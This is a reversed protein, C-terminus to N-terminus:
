KTEDWRNLYAPVGGIIGFTQVSQAVSYGPMARVVDLFNLDILPLIQDIKKMRRGLAEEMDKRVWTLQPTALLIFVPSKGFKGDKRDFLSNWFAESRKAMILFDDIVVVLKGGGRANMQAFCADYSTEELQIHYEEQLEGALLAQQKKESANRVRYYFVEKNSAFEQILSEKGCRSSGYILAIQSGEEKYLKELQKWERSRSTM